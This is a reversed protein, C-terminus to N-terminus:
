AWRGWVFACADALRESQAEIAAVQDSLGSDAAWTKLGVLGQATICVALDEHPIPAHWCHGLEHLFTRLLEPFSRDRGHIVIMRDRPRGDRDVMRSPATWANTSVGVALVAVQGLLMDRVPAPARAFAEVAVPLLEKDGFLLMEDAIRARLAAPTETPRRASDLWARLRARGGNSAVLVQRWARVLLALREPPTLPPCADLAVRWGASRGLDPALARLFERTVTPTV